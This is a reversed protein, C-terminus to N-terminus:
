KLLILEGYGEPESKKEERYQKMWHKMADDVAGHITEKRICTSEIHHTKGRITIEKSLSCSWGLSVHRIEVFFGRRGLETLVHHVDKPRIKADWVSLPKKPDELPVKRLRM